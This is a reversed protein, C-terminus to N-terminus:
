GHQDEKKIKSLISIIDYFEKKHVIISLVIYVILGSIVQIFALLMIPLEMLGISYVVVAMVSAMLLSPVFDMFQERISYNLYKQSPYINIFLNLFTSIVYGIAIAIVGYRYSASLIVLGIARKIVNLKLFIDSRGIGNFAQTNVINIPYFLFALCFLQMFPIMPAWKETFLIYVFPKSVTAFGLMIPFFVYSSLKIAKRMTEKLKVLDSQQKAYVPLMVAGISTSTIQGIMKPYQQGKNYFALMDSAYKKGIILSFLETYLTDIISSLILKYGYNMICKLKKLSFACIIKWKLFIKLLFCQIIYYLIQQWVLAWAGYGLNALIIGIVGSGLAGAITVLSLLKFKMARSAVAVQISNIAGLIITIALVRLISTLSDDAYFDSILPAAVYFVGYLVISILVNTYFGTSWDVEDIEKKQILATNLGSLVLTNGFAIFVNLLAITGYDSTSLLRALFVSIVLSIGTSAFREIYKWFISKAISMNNLGM